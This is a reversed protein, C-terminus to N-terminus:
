EREKLEGWLMTLKGFPAVSLEGAVWDPWREDSPDSHLKQLGRTALTYRYIDYNPANKNLRKLSFLVANDGEMWSAGSIIFNEGLRRNIATLEQKSGGIRKICFRKVDGDPFWRAEYFLIRLGDASWRPFYRFTPPGNQPPNPLIPRQRHGDADMVYITKPAIGNAVPIFREFTLQMGDPSWSPTASEAERGGATIQTVAHTEVDLVFVEWAGSRASTFAIQTGDPSWAPTVDLANNYTLRQPDTGDANMVFIEATAQDRSNLYRYFTIQTGDPSWRPIRDFAVKHQTLRRRRSGDDNSVFIDGNVTYVIKAQVSLALLGFCFLGFARRTAKM